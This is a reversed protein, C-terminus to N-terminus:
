DQIQPYGEMKTVDVALMYGAARISEMGMPADEYGVCKAPDVGIAAAAKLYTEPHPKGHAVDNATVVADFLKRNTDAEYLGTKRLSSIVQDRSGGTAIACKLGRARGARLVAMVCEIPPPEVGATHEQYIATKRQSAAPVDVDARGQAASLEALITRTPKGAMNLFQEHTFTLGLESMLQKWAQWHAGM